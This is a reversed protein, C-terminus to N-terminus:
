TSTEETDLTHINHPLEDFVEIVTLRAKNIKALAAARTLAAKGWSGRDNVPRVNM